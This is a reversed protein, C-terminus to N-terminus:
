NRIEKTKFLKRSGEALLLLKGGVEGASLRLFGLYTLSVKCPFGGAEADEASPGQVRTM